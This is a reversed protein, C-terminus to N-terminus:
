QSAAINLTFSSAFTIFASIEEEDNAADGIM